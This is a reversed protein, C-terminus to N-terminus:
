YTLIPLPINYIGIVINKMWSDRFGVKGGRSGKWSYQVALSDAVFGRLIRRTCDSVNKGGRSKLYNVKIISFM